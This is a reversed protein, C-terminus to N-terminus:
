AVISHLNVRFRKRSKTLFYLYICRVSLYKCGLEIMQGTENFPPTNMLLSLAQPNLDQAISTKLSEAFFLFTRTKLTECAFIFKVLCLYFIIDINNEFTSLWFFRLILSNLQM